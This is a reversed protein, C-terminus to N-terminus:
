LFVGEQGTTENVYYVFSFHNKKTQVTWFFDIKQIGLDEYNLVISYEYMIVLDDMYISLWLMNRSCYIFLM